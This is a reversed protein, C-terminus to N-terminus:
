SRDNSYEVKFDANNEYLASLRGLGFALLATLMLILALYARQKTDAPLAKIKSRMEQLTIM